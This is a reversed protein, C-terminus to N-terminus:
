IGATGGTAATAGTPSCSCTGTEANRCSGTGGGEERRGSKRKKRKEQAPAPRRNLKDLDIKGVPKFKPRADEPVVTKIEEPKAKEQTEKYGDISM